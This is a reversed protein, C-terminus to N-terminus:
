CPTPRLRSDIRPYLRFCVPTDARNCNYRDQNLSRLGVGVTTKVDDAATTKPRGSKKNSALLEVPVAPSGAQAESRDWRDRDGVGGSGRRDNTLWM